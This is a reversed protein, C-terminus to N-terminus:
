NRYTNEVGRIGHRQTHTQRVTQREAQKDWQRDRQRDTHTDTQTNTPTCYCCSKEPKETGPETCRSKQDGSGDAPDVTLAADVAPPPPPPAAALLRGWTSTSPDEGAHTLSRTAKLFVTETSSRSSCGDLPSCRRRLSSLRSSRPLFFSRLMWTLTRSTVTNTSSTQNYKTPTLGGVMRKYQANM